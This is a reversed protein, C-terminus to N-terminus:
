SSYSVQVPSFTRFEDLKDEIRKFVYLLIKQEASNFQDLNKILTQYRELKTTLSFLNKINHIYFLTSFKCEFPQISYLTIAKEISAAILTDLDNWVAQSHYITNDYQPLENM